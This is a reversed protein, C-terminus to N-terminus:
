RGTRYWDVNAAHEHSNVAEEIGRHTNVADLSAGSAARSGDSAAALEDAANELRRIQEMLRAIAALTSADLDNLSMSAQMREVQARLEEAEVRAAAATDLYTTVAAGIEELATRTQAIGVPESTTVPMPPEETHPDHVTTAPPVPPNPDTPEPDTPDDSAATGDGGAPPKTLSVPNADPLDAAPLDPVPRPRATNRRACPCGWDRNVCGCGAQETAAEASTHDCTPCRGTIWNRWRPEGVPDAARDRRRRRADVRRRAARRIGRERGRRAGERGGAWVARGTGSAVWWLGRSVAALGAAAGGAIRAGRSDSTRARRMAASGTSVARDFGTRAASAGDSWGRSMAGQVAYAAILCFLILM